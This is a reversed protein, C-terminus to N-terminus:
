NFKKARESERINYDKIMISYLDEEISLNVTEVIRGVERYQHMIIVTPINKIGYLTSEINLAEKARNVGYMEVSRLDIGVETLVKYFKPLLEKTDSCWTGAFVVFRYDGSIRNLGDIMDRNPHYTKAGTALWDFSTENLIHDFNIKGRLLVNGTKKDSERVFDQANSANMYFLTILLLIVNKM